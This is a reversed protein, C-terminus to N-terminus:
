LSENSYNVFLHRDSLNVRQISQKPLQELGKRCLHALVKRLIRNRPGLLTKGLILTVILHNILLTKSSPYPAKMKMKLKMKTYKHCKNLNKKLDSSTIKWGGTIILIKSQYERKPTPTLAVKWFLWAIIRYASKKSPQYRIPVKRLLHLPKPQAPAKSLSTDLFCRMSSSELRGCM